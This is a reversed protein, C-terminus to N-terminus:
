IAVLKVCKLSAVALNRFKLNWKLHLCHSLLAVALPYCAYPIPPLPEHPLSPTARLMSDIIYYLCNVDIFTDLTQNPPLFSFRSWRNQINALRNIKNARRSAVKRAEDRRTENGGQWMFTPTTSQYNCCNLLSNNM